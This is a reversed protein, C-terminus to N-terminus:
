GWAHSAAASSAVERRATLSIARKKRLPLRAELTKSRCSREGRGPAATRKRRRM